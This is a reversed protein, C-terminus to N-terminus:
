SCCYALKTTKETYLLQHFALFPFIGFHVFLCGRGGAWLGMLTMWSSAPLKPYSSRILYTQLEAFVTHQHWCISIYIMVVIPLGDSKKNPLAMSLLRSFFLIFNLHGPSLQNWVALEPTSFDPRIDGSDEKANQALCCAVASVADTWVKGKCNNSGSFFHFTKLLCFQLSSSTLAWGSLSGYVWM